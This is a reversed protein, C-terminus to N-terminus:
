PGGTAWPGDVPVLDIVVAPEGDENIFRWVHPQARPTRACSSGHTPRVRGRRPGGHARPGLTQRQREVDLTEETGPAALPPADPFTLMVLGSPPPNTAAEVAPPQEGDFRFSIREFGDHAGWLARTIVARTTAPDPQAYGPPPGPEDVRGNGDLDVEATTPPATSRPSADGDESGGGGATFAVAVAVVVILAVLAGLVAIGGGLQPQRRPAPARRPGADPPRRGNGAPHGGPGGDPGSAPRSAYVPSAPPTDPVFVSRCAPSTSGGGTPGGADPGTAVVTDPGSVRAMGAASGAPTAPAVTIPATPIEAVPVVGSPEAEAAPRVATMAAGLAVALKPRPDLAM